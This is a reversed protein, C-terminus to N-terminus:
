ASCLLLAQLPVNAEEAEPRKRESAGPHRPAESTRMLQIAMSPASRRICDNSLRRYSACLPPPAPRCRCEAMSSLGASSSNSFAQRAAGLCPSFALVSIKCAASAAPSSESSSPAPLGALRCRMPALAQGAASCGSEHKSCLQVPKKCSETLTLHLGAPQRHIGRESGQQQAGNAVHAEDQEVMPQSQLGQRRPPRRLPVARRRTGPLPAPAAAGRPATDPECCSGACGCARWARPVAEWCQRNQRSRGPQRQVCPGRAHGYPLFAPAAQDGRRVAAAQM